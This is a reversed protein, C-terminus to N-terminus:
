DDVRVSGGEVVALQPNAATGEEFSLTAQPPVTAVLVVHGHDLRVEEMPLDPARARLAGMVEADPIVLRDVGAPLPLQDRASQLGLVRYDSTGDAATFLHGYDGHLTRGIGYVRHDPKYYTLHRFSGGPDPTTLVVTREADFEGVFRTIERWHRDNARIDYQRWGETFYGGAIGSLRYAPLFSLLGNSRDEELAPTGYATLAIVPPASFFLGASGLTLLAVLAVAAYRAGGVSRWASRVPHMARQLLSSGAVAAPAAAPGGTSAAPAAEQPGIGARSGEVLGRIGVGLALFFAPLILLVYGVQGTHLFLYTVLAPLLWLTFFPWDRRFVGYARRGRFVSALLVLLGFNVGLVVGFTVLLLNQTLGGADMAFISTPTVALATQESLHRFFAGVGGSMWFLPILWALNGAVLLSGARLREQWPFAWVLYIWLPTLLLGGSQRVAGLVVLIVTAAVLHPLSVRKRAVYGAWLFFLGLALEVSYSLAVSSYYWVVPSVGLLVSSMLAYGRSLFLSALLFFAAPAAAGGLASLFTLSANAEGTFLNMLWGLAIYGIYGPPHPQHHELNFMQTGLAFNVSDWNLLFDARFPLRILLFAAFILLAIWAPSIRKLGAVSNTSM